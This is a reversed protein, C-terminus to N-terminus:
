RTQVQVREIWGTFREILFFSTQTGSKLIVQDLQRPEHVDIDDVSVIRDGQQLNLQRLIPHHNDWGYVTMGGSHHTRFQIYGAIPIYQPYPKAQIIVIPAVPLEPRARQVETEPNYTLIRTQGSIGRVMFKPATRSTVAQRFENESRLEQDNIMIIRDGKKFGMERGVSGQPVETIEIYSFKGDGGYIIDFIVDLRGPWSKVGLSPVMDQHNEGENHVNNLDNADAKSIRGLAVRNFDIKGTYGNGLGLMVFDGQKVEEVQLVEGEQVVFEKTKGQRNRFRISTQQLVKAVPVSNVIWEDALKKQIEIQAQESQVKVMEWEREMELQIERQRASDAEQKERQIRTRIANADRKLDAILSNIRNLKSTEKPTLIEVPIEISDGDFQEVFVVRRYGNRSDEHSYTLSLAKTSNGSGVFEWNRRKVLGELERARELAQENSGDSKILALDSKPVQAILKGSFVFVLTPLAMAVAM